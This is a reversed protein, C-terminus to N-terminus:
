VFFVSLFNLTQLSVINVAQFIEGFSGSGIKRLLKFRAKTPDGVLFDSRHGYGSDMKLKRHRYKVEYLEIKRTKTESENARPSVSSTKADKVKAWM